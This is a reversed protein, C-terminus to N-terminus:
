LTSSKIFPETPVTQSNKDDLKLKNTKLKKRNEILFFKGLEEIKCIKTTDEVLEKTYALILLTTFISFVLYSPLISRSGSLALSLVSSVQFFNDSIIIVFLILELRLTYYTIVHYIKLLLSLSDKAKSPRIFSLVACVLRRTIFLIGFLSIQFIGFYSFKPIKETIKNRHISKPRTTDIPSLIESKDQYKQTNELFSTLRKGFNVSLYRLRKIVYFSQM